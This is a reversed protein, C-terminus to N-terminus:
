ETKPWSEGPPKGHEECGIDRRACPVCVKAPVLAQLALALRYKGTDTGEYIYPRTVNHGILERAVEVVKKMGDSERNMLECIAKAKARASTAGNGFAGINLDMMIAVVQDEMDSSARLRQVEAKWRKSEEESVIQMM